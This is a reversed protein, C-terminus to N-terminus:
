EVSKTSTGDGGPPCPAEQKPQHSAVLARWRAVAACDIDADSGYPTIGNKRMALAAWSTEQPKWTDELGNCSCHSATVEYLLGNREFLVEADGCYDGYGYWAFLIEDDRVADTSISFSYCLSGHDNFNQFYRQDNGHNM